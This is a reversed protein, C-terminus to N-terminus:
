FPENEHCWRHTSLRETTDLGKYGWLRDGALRRQGHFEGPLFVPTPLWARKWLIEEFCPDFRPRRGQLPMKKVM